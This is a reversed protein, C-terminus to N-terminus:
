TPNGAGASPAETPESAPLMGSEVLADAVKEWLMFVSVDPRQRAKDIAKMVGDPTLKADQHRLGAWLLVVLDTLSKEGLARVLSKSMRREAELLDGTGYFLVREKDLHIGVVGAPM